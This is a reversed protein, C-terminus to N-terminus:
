PRIFKYIAKAARVTYKEDTKNIYDSIRQQQIDIFQNQDPLKILTEDLICINNIVPGYQWHRYNVDNEWTVSHANLFICPRPKIAIWEYVQSSVDGMYIDSIHLYTGDVALESNLDIHINPSIAFEDFDLNYKYKSKWHKLLIHPAFIFNYELHSKFFRLLPRGLEPFSSFNPKWHPTYFVIPNDNSFLTNRVEGINTPYDLKPWGIIETKSRDITGSAHLRDQHYQGPVLLLDYLGLNPEFGYKRDGCGHYQYIIKPYKVKYKHLLKITSHSTAIIGDATSLHHAIKPITDAPSPYLKQKYNLYKYRFPIPIQNIVTNQKPYLSQVKKLFETHVDSCSILEVRYENQIISLVMATLATHVLHHSGNIYLFSITPNNDM